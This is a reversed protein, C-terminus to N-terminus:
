RLRVQAAAGEQVPRRNEVDPAHEPAHLTRARAPLRARHGAPHLADAAGALSRQQLQLAAGAARQHGERHVGDHAIQDAPSSPFPTGHRYGRQRRQQLRDAVQVERVGEAAQGVAQEGSVGGRQRDDPVDSPVQPVAATVEAPRLHAVDTSLHPIVERNSQLPAIMEEAM